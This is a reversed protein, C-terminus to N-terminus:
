IVPCVSLMSRDGVMCDMRPEDYGVVELAHIGQLKTAADYNLIEAFILELFAFHEIIPCTGLFLQVHQLLLKETKNRNSDFNM